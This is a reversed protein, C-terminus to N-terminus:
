ANNLLRFNLPHQLAEKAVKYHKLLQSSKGGAEHRPPHDVVLVWLWGKYTM